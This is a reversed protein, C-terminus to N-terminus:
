FDEPLIAGHRLALSFLKVDKEMRAQAIEADDERNARVLKDLDSNIMDQGEYLQRDFENAAEDPIALHTVRWECCPCRLGIAWHYGGNGTTEALQVFSASGQDCARCQSLDVDEFQPMVFDPNYIDPDSFDPFETPQYSESFPM